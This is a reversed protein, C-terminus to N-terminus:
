LSPQWRIANNPPTSVVSTPRRLFHTVPATRSASDQGQGRQWEREGRGQKRAVLLPVAKSKWVNVAM